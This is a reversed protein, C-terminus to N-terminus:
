TCSCISSCTPFTHSSLGIYESITFRFVFLTLFVLSVFPSRCCNLGRVYFSVVFERFYSSFMLLCICLM